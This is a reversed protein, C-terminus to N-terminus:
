TREIGNLKGKLELIDQETDWRADKLNAMEDELRSLVKNLYIIRGELKNISQQIDIESALM